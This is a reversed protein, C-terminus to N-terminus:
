LAAEWGLHPAQVFGVSRSRTFTLVNGKWSCGCGPAGAPDALVYAQCTGCWKRWTGNSGPAACSPCEAYGGTFAGRYWADPVADNTCLEDRHSWTERCEPCEHQHEIAEPYTSLAAGELLRTWEGGTDTDIDVPAASM